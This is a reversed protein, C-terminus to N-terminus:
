SYIPIIFEQLFLDTMHEYLNWEALELESQLLQQSSTVGINGHIRGGHTFTNNETESSSIGEGYEDKITGSHTNTETGGNDVTNKESPQYSSSDYASVQTESTSDTDITLKDENDLTRTNGSDKRGSSTNSRDTTDTWDEKRDYNELPAYEISLADIWKQFTRNWKRSWLGIADQMFYPDAYLVEFDGGKLLINKTLIDKEIGDPLILNKFLDDNSDNLFKNLGILTIKMTSM